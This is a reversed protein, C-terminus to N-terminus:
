LTDSQSNPSFEPTDTHVLTSTDWLPQIPGSDLPSRIFPQGPRTVPNPLKLNDLRLRQLELLVLSDAIAEARLLIKDMCSQQREEIAKNLKERVGQQIRPDDPSPPNPTNLCGAIPLLVACMALSLIQSVKLFPLRKM